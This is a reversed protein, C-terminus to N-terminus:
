GNVFVNSSGTSTHGCTASDGQRCVSIGNSFVNSSGTAMTPGAHIGGPPHGQVAAGIVTINTGNVYVNPSLIGVIIGGASDQNVRSCGPM